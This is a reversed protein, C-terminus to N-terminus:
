AEAITQTEVDRVKYTGDKIDQVVSKAIEVAEDYDHADVTYSVTISFETM